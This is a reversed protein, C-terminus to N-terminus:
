PTVTASPAVTGDGAPTTEGAPTGTAPGQPTAGATAGQAKPSLYITATIEARLKPFIEQDSSWKVTEVTLLRGSVLVDQNALSVFRKVDHFFDALNFFNGVFELQLPVTELGVPAAATTGTPTATGGGVPLGGGSSTSTQTDAADVGSQEAATSRQDASQQATNASEVAAGPASQATAGGAATPTGTTGTAPPTTATATTTSTVRDGTAIKTFRIGTGAAAADLQVLLSPMDVTSPIAKGLRVVQAYSADFSQKAGEAATLSARAADLREEQTTLETAATNAEERKPGLLMFWYLALLAIPVLGLMLKRDRDTLTV